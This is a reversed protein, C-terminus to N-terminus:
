FDIVELGTLEGSNPLDWIRTIDHLNHLQATSVNFSSYTVFYGLEVKTFMIRVQNFNLRLQCGTNNFLQRLLQGLFM